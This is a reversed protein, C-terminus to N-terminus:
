FKRIARVRNPLNKAYILYHGLGFAICFANSTNLETSTWYIDYNNFVTAGTISSLSKIVNFRNHWLLSLEDISPLYWDNQGGNTSNLCLAAASTTHGSSNTIANSNGTGDWSSQANLGILLSTQNSWTKSTDLDVKDVILGHEVGQDDKWLHFVVGGGFEEGIYHAFNGAGSATGASLSYTAYPVSLLQTTGMAQYSTGGSADLGIGLFYNDSGWDISAFNGSQVVGTGISLNFLGNADTNVSHHETYLVSGTAAGKLVNIEVGIIASSIPLGNANRAVASYNFAHPSQAQVVYIGALLLLLTLRFIKISRM